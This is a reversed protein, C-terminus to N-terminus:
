YENFYNEEDDPGFSDEGYKIDHWLQNWKNAANIHDRNDSHDDNQGNNTWPARLGCKPCEFSVYNDKPEIDCYPCNRLKM